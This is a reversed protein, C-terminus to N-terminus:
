LRHVLDALQWIASRVRWTRVGNQAAYFPRYIIQFLWSGITCLSAEGFFFRKLFTM